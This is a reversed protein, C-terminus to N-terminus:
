RPRKREDGVSQLLQEMSRLVITAAIKDGAEITRGAATKQGVRGDIIEDLLASLATIDGPTLEDCQFAELLQDLGRAM